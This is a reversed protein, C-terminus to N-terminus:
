KKNKQALLTQPFRHTILLKGSPSVFVAKGSRRRELTNPGLLETQPDIHYDAGEQGCRWGELGRPFFAFPPMFHKKNHFVTLRHLSNIDNFFSCM